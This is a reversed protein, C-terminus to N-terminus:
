EFINDLGEDENKHEKKTEQEQNEKHAIDGKPLVRELRKMFDPDIDIEEENEETKKRKKREVNTSKEVLQNLKQYIVAINSENLKMLTEITQSDNKDVIVPILEFGLNNFIEELTEPNIRWHILSKGAKQTQAVKMYINDAKEPHLLRIFVRQSGGHEEVQNLAGELLKLFLTRLTAYKNAM